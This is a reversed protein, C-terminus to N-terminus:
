LLCARTIPCKNRLGKEKIDAQIVGKSEKLSPESTEEEILDVM